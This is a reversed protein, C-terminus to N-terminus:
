GELHGTISSGAVLSVRRAAPIVSISGTEDPTSVFVVRELLGSADGIGFRDLIDNEVTILTRGEAESAVQLELRSEDTRVREVLMPRWTPVAPLPTEAAHAPNVCNSEACDYSLESGPSPEHNFSSFVLRHVDHFEGDEALRVAFPNAWPPQREDNLRAAVEELAKRALSPNLTISFNELPICEDKISDVSDEPTKYENEIPAPPDTPGSWGCTGCVQLWTEVTYQRSIQYSSCSPCRDNTGREIRAVAYLFMEIVNNTASLALRGDTMSANRAHTLWGLYEWTCDSQSKLLKRLRSSSSGPALIGAFVEAWGKFNGDQQPLEATAPVELDLTRLKSTLTLLSERLRMGVAQVDEIERAGDLSDSATRLRRLVELVWSTSGSAQFQVSDRAMVRTMLGIHFSLAIDMSRVQDQSYLNTPPSIVWWRGENTHADWVDYQQGLVHESTLKEVHEVLFESGSQSELYEIIERREYEPTEM